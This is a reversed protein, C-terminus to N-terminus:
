IFRSVSIFHLRRSIVRRKGLLLRTHLCSIMLGTHGQTVGLSLACAHVHSPNTSHCHPNDRHPLFELLFLRYFSQLFHLKWSHWQPNWYCLDRLISIWKSRDAVTTACAFRHPFFIHQHVPPATAPRALNRVLPIVCSSIKFYPSPSM